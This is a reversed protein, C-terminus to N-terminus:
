RNEVPLHFVILRFNRGPTVASSQATKRHISPVLNTWPEFVEFAFISWSDIVTFLSLKAPFPHCIRYQQHLYSPPGSM